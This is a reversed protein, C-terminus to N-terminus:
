IIISDNKKEGCNVQLSELLSLFGYIFHHCYNLFGSRNKILSFLNNEKLVREVESTNQGQHTLFFNKVPTKAHSRLSKGHEPHEKPRKGVQM